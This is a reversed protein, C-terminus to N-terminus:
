INATVLSYEYPINALPKESSFFDAFSCCIPSATSGPGAMCLPCPAPILRTATEVSHM